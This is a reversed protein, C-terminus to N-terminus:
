SRIVEYAYSEALKNETSGTDRRSGVVFLRVEVV